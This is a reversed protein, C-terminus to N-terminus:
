FPTDDGHQGFRQWPDQEPFPVAATQAARELRERDERAAATDAERRERAAVIDRPERNSLRVMLAGVVHMMLWADAKTVDGERHRHANGRDSRDANVWGILPKMLSRDAPSIVNQRQANDLQDSVSNGEVGLARFFEQLSTAAQTLAVDTEGKSLRTLASQYANSATNFVPDDGLLITAPRLVESHMVYNGREQFRGDEFLWDARAHLLRDNVVEIFADVNYEPEVDPRNGYGSDEWEEDHDSLWLFANVVAALADLREHDDGEGRLRNASVWVNSNLEGLRKDAMDLVRRPMNTFTELAAMVETGVPTPCGDLWSIGTELEAVAQERRRRLESPLPDLRTDRM